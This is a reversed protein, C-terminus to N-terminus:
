SSVGFLKPIVFYAVACLCVIVIPQRMVSKIGLFHSLILTFVTTAILIAIFNFISSTIHEVSETVVPSLM